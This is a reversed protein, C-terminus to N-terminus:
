APQPWRPTRLTESVGSALGQRRLRQLAAQANSRRMHQELAVVYPVIPATLLWTASFYAFTSETMSSITTFLLVAPIEPPILSKDRPQRVFFHRVTLLWVILLAVLIATGGVVGSEVLVHLFANHMHEGIYYRDAQFGYGWWPSKLFLHWGASWTRSRGSMTPDVQGTRTIYLLVDKYYFGKLSLLLAAAAGVLLFVTRRSKRVVMVLLASAVFALIETRGNSIVLAYVSTVLLGAWLIRVTRDGEWIRALSALACIAAYRGFGTNRSGAMGLVEPTTWSHLGGGMHVQAVARMGLFPLAGLIGATFLAAVLWNFLIINSLDPLPEQIAAIALLVLVIATYNVGWYVADLSGASVIASTVLGILAFVLVLGLPSMIWRVLRNARTLMLLLALWGALMPFFARVGHILQVKDAPWDPTQVYWLGTNYGLWLLAWLVVGLITNLRIGRKPQVFQRVPFLGEAERNRRPTTQLQLSM